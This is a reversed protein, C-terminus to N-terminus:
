LSKKSKTFPNATEVASPRSSETTAGGRLGSKGLYLMDQEVKFVNFEGTPVTRLPCALTGTKGELNVVKSVEWAAVGCFGVKDLVDKGSANLAKVEVHDFRFDVKRVQESNTERLTLEGKYTVEVAENVCDADSYFTHAEQYLNGSFKFYPKASLDLIDSKACKGEWTDMLQPEEFRQTADKITSGCAVAFISVLVTMAYSFYITKM